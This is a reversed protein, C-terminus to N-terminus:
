LIIFIINKNLFNNKTTKANESKNTLTLRCKQTDLWSDTQKFKQRITWSYTQMMLSILYNEMSFIAKFINTKREDGNRSNKEVGQKVRVFMGSLFLFKSLFFINLFDFYIALSV